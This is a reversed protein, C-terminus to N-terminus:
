EPTKKNKKQARPHASDYVKALHQFDLHTYIQTTAINAHGLLDQVLRLDSSSELMHSAFSHRLMHPHVPQAMGQQLSIKRLREQVNRPSIRKGRSSIFLAPEQENARLAREPLYAAIAKLAESGVPLSREKNGKGTVRVSGENRDLDTLNIGVLESLRLGSSYFLEVLARDRLSIFDTGALEVFQIAQDVDLTKPLKRNVKPTQLGDAPNNKIWDRKIAFRFFSRLGSLWRQLSKASLGERHLETLNLRIDQPTLQGIATISRGAAFAQLKSLDRRYAELTRDSLQRETQLYTYFADLENQFPLANM